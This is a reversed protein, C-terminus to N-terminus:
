YRSENYKDHLFKVKFLKLTKGPDPNPDLDALIRM